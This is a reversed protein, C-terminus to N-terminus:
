SRAPLASTRDQLVPRALLFSLLILPLAAGFTMRVHVLEALIGILPPGTFFAIWSLQTLAAVNIAAPRDTRRAVASIALPMMVANGAGMLVFGILALEWSPSFTAAIAGIALACLMSQAVKVPGYKDVFGDSFFRTLFQATSSAVLALGGVFPVATFADRMYIVSWDSAAGEYIMGALTFVGALLVAVTPVAFRPAPGGESTPRKPAPQFRWWLVVIGILLFAAVSLLHWFPGIGAHRVAAGSFATALFGLSYTAHCRNMIRRGLMLETRDAEVNIVTSALGAMMGLFFLCAFLVTPNPSLSALAAFFGMAPVAVFLTKRFGFAEIYPSVLTVSVMMGAATGILAGGVAAQKVGMALQIDGLRTFISGFAIGTLAFAGFVRYLPSFALNFKM